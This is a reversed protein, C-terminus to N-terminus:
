VYHEGEKITRLTHLDQQLFFSIAAIGSFGQPVQTRTEKNIGGLAIIPMNVKLADTIESLTRPPVGPKSRTKFLHGFLVYDLDHAKAQQITEKHHTSMSVCVEPHSRKFDFARVDMEKFHIRQLDFNELVNINSHATIKDKPFGADLLGQIDAAQTAQNTRVILCDIVPAIEVYHSMITETLENPTIAVWVISEGEKILLDCSFLSYFLM